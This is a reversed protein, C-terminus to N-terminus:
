APSIQPVRAAPKPDSAACDGSPLEQSQLDLREITSTLHRVVLPFRRLHGEVPHFDFALLKM